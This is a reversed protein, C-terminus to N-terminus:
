ARPTLVVPAVPTIVVHYISAIERAVYTALVEEGVYSLHIGDSARLVSSVHNAYAASQFQGRANALLQWTSLYTAGPVSTAVEQSLRNLYQVGQRYGNPEMIPLGVWLVYAGRKTAEGVIQRLRRVYEDRWQNTGFAVASGHVRMGQEDNAGFTIVVLHPRYQHLYQAFHQPWNYFWSTTIGTSSVDQQVLVLGRQSGIERALGWGLDNGLSDGIELVVCRGLALPPRGKAYPPTTTSPPPPTQRLSMRCGRGPAAFYAANNQPPATTTTPPANTTGTAGQPATTTSTPASTASSHTQQSAFGIVILAVLVTSLTLRLPWRRGPGRRPPPM